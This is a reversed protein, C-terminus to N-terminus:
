GDFASLWSQELRSGPFWSRHVDLIESLRADLAATDPLARVKLVTDCITWLNHRTLATEDAFVETVDAAARCVSCGCSYEGALVPGPDNLAGYPTMYWGGRAFHGYSASDFIDAGLRHLFPIECPDGAGYIHMPVEPGIVARAQRLVQVVFGMEHNRNFFPVLSGIALYDVQLAALTEISRRRLDLFRGGQQVGAVTGQEALDLAQRIRKNTADLKRAAVAHSDGPPTVLDLPALIDSGIRDQFRVIDANKLYLQRTFGQFAGSDTAILGDFGVHGHLTDGDPGTLRRRLDRQKYLFFANVICAELPPDDQWLALQFTETRPQYVPMFLPLAFDRGRRRLRRPAQRAPLPHGAPSPRGAPSATPGPAPGPSLSAAAAPGPDCM